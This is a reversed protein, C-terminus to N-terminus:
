RGPRLMAALGAELPIEPAWGLVRRAKSCDLTVQATDATLTIERSEFPMELVGAITRAIEQTTLSSQGGVNFRGRVRVDAARVLARAADQVHLLQLM